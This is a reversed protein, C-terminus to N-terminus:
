FRSGLGDMEAAANLLANVAPVDFPPDSPVVAPAAPTAPAAPPTPIRLRVCDVMKGGYQCTTAFVAVVRGSWLESDDGYAQALVTANTKNLILGKKANRFYLCPKLDDEGEIATMELSAITLPVERGAPIDAARLYKSPFMETMKPM